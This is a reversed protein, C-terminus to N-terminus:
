LHQNETNDNSQVVIGDTLRTVLPDLIDKEIKNSLEKMMQKEIFELEKQMPKYGDVVITIIYIAHQILPHERDCLNHFAKIAEKNISLLDQVVVARNKSIQVKLNYVTEGFDNPFDKPTLTLYDNRGLIISSLQGLLNALCNLTATENGFLIIVSPKQPYLAVEYIGSSIDNWINPRQNYFQNRILKMKEDLTKDVDILNQKNTENNEVENEIINAEQTTTKYSVIIYLVIILGVILTCLPFYNYKEPVKTKRKRVKENSSLSNNTNNLSQSTNPTRIHRKQLNTRDSINYTKTSSDLVVSHFSDNSLNINNDSDDDEEDDTIDNNDNNLYAQYQKEIKRMNDQMKLNNTNQFSYSDKGESTNLKRLPLRAKPVCSKFHEVESNSDIDM